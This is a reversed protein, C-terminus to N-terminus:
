AALCPSLYVPMKILRWRDVLYIDLSMRSHGNKKAYLRIKVDVTRYKRCANTKFPRSWRNPYKKHPNLAVSGQGREEVIWGIDLGDSILTYCRWVECELPDWCLPNLDTLPLFHLSYVRLLILM